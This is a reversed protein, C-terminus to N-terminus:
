SIALCIAASAAFVGGGGGVRLTFSRRLPSSYRTTRRSAFVSEENTQKSQTGEKRKAHQPRPPQITSPSGRKENAESLVGERRESEIFSAEESRWGDFSFSLPRRRHYFLFLFLPLRALADRLCNMMCFFFFLIFFSLIMTLLFFFVFESM